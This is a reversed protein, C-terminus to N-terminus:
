SVSVMSAASLTFTAPLLSSRRAIPMVAAVALKRPVKTSGESEPWPKWVRISLPTKRFFSFMPPPRYRSPAPM